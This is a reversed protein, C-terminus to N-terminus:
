KLGQGMIRMQQGQKVCRKFRKDSYKDPLNRQLGCETLANELSIGRDELDLLALANIAAKDLTCFKLDKQRELIALCELEGLGLKPGLALDFKNQLGKMESITASVEVLRHKTLEHKWNIQRKRNKSDFYFLAEVKLVTSAIHVRNKETFQQWFGLRHIDIVVDADPLLSNM